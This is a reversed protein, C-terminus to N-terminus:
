RATSGVRESGPRGHCGSVRAACFFTTGPSILSYAMSIMAVALQELGTMADADLDGAEVDRGAHAAGAIDLVNRVVDAAALRHQVTDIVIRLM